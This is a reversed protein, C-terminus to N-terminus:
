PYKSGTFTDGDGTITKSEVLMTMTRALAANTIKTTSFIPVGPLWLARAEVQSLLRKM